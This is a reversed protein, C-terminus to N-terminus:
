HLEGDFRRVREQIDEIPMAQVDRQRLIDMIQGKTKRGVKHHRRLFGHKLHNHWSEVFNNTDMAAYYIDNRYAKMWMKLRAENQFYNKDLYAVFKPYSAWDKRLEDIMKHAQALDPEYM